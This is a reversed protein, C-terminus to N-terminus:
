AAPPLELGTWNGSTQTQVQETEHRFGAPVVLNLNTLNAPTRPLWEFDTQELM